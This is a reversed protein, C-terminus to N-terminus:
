STMPAVFSLTARNNRCSDCTDLSLQPCLTLSVGYQVYSDFSTRLQVTV